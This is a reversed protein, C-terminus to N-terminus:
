VKTKQSLFFFLLIGAIFTTVADVWFLGKYSIFAIIFGALAPGFSFGLNIALRILTVSRTKNEESSYDAIAVWMAPRFLDIVTMLIFIGISFQWFTELYQLMFFLIGGLLLSIYMVKHYGIVDTLKGGLLTGVFSGLGYFTMITGVEPFSFGLAETLYLALFPIVMAGTRNVLTIGSLIWIDKTLNKYPKLLKELM